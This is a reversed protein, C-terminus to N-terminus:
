ARAHLERQLNRYTELDLQEGRVRSDLGLSALAGNVREREYGAMQLNKALTKRRHRFADKVLDFLEPEPRAEPRVDLRVISSTVEPPPYFSGPAVNRVVRAEAFHRTMLSVAGYQPTGAAATLREAVEKQVMVVLRTFRGSELARVILGTAINYPLNAVLVSREPLEGLDFTMADGFRLELNAADGVTEKLPELLRRDLEVSVVRGARLALERTLVGLGPGVELVTEDRTLDAATVIAQLAHIDVLFNQGFSKDARLGFKELLARVSSPAHLAGGM